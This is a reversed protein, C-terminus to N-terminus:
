SKVVESLIRCASQALIHGAQEPFAKAPLAPATLARVGLEQAAALDTGYPASALDIILTGPQMRALMARDFIRVPVTNYILDYEAPDIEHTPVCTHGLAACWALDAARRASLTALPLKNALCKGIRGFGCVLTRAQTPIGTRQALDIAGAATLAANAIKVTEQEYYDFCRVGYQMALTYALADFRGGLVPTHRGASAFLAELSLDTDKVTDADGAYPMPLVIACVDPTGLPLCTYGAQTLCAHMARSRPDTGAVALTKEREM